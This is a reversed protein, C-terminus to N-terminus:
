LPWRLASCPCCPGSVLAHSSPKLEVREEKVKVRPTQKASKTARTRKLRQRAAENREKATKSLAKVTARGTRKQIAKIQRDYDSTWEVFCSRPEWSNADDGYDKWSYTSLPDAGTRRGHALWRALSAVCRVFYRVEWRKGSGLSADYDLDEKVNLM